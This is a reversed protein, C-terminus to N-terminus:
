DVILTALLGIALATPSLGFVLVAIVAAVVAFGVGVHAVDLDACVRKALSSRSPESKM